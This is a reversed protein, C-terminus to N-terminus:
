RASPPCPGLAGPAAGGPPANGGGIRRRPDPGLLFRGIAAVTTLIPRGHGALTPFLEPVRWVQLSVLLFLTLQLSDWPLRPAAVPRPQSPYAISGPVTMSSPLQM